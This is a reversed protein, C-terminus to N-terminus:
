VSTDADLMGAARQLLSRGPHRSLLETAEALTVWKRERYPAELWTGREEHVELLFVDVVCPVGRRKYEYTGISAGILRGRIGAEELAERLATQELTEGPEVRGKPIGWPLTWKRILCIELRGGARRFPIAAAQQLPPAPASAQSRATSPHAAERDRTRSRGAGPPPSDEDGHPDWAVVCGALGAGFGLLGMTRGVVGLVYLIILMAAVAGLSWALRARTM